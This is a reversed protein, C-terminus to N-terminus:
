APQEAANVPKCVDCITEGHEFHISVCHACFLCGCYDCVRSGDLDDFWTGCVDCRNTDM